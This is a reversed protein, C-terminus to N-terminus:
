KGRTRCALALFSAGILTLSAPEPVPTAVLGITDDSSDTYFGVLQGLDNVGNVVTNTSGTPDFSTFIGSVDTYGHEMGSNDTYFGVIEGLSNIGLAQSFTSSFPDITTITGGIDVFGISITGTPMYFGVIDGSNNIGTARSNQNAPLLSNISTFVGGKQSYAKQGVQGAPDIASSYGVTINADNIGLAQNFVTGPQDVTTFTGGIDTYGHTTGGADQYVGATSGATNIATVMSAISAPYNQSSFNNPLTLTFGEAVVAGDFGAITGANNIGLLQTFTPNAPSEVTQVMYTAYAQQAATLILLAVGTLVIERRM